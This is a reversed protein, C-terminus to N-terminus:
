SSFTEQIKEFMNPFRHEFIAIMEPDMPDYNDPIGMVRMAKVSKMEERFKRMAHNFHTQEMFVMVDAWAIIGADMKVRAKYPHTGCSKFEHEPFMRRAVIEATYSRMRNATCVFVVRM